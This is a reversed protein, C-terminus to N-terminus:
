GAASGLPSTMEAESEMDGHLDSQIKVPRTSPRAQRATESSGRLIEDLSRARQKGYENMSYAIRVLREFGESDLHEKRRMSRIIEAFLQFDRDKVVLRHHDFFPVIREDLRTLGEVAYTLV